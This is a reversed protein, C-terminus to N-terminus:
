LIPIPVKVLRIIYISLLLDIPARFFNIRGKELVNDSPERSESTSFLSLNLARTFFSPGFSVQFFPLNKKFKFM